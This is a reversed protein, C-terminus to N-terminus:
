IQELISKRLVFIFWIKYKSMSLKTLSLGDNSTVKNALGQYNFNIDPDSFSRNRPARPSLTIQAVPLIQESINQLMLWKRKFSVPGVSSSSSSNSTNYIFKQKNAVCNPSTRLSEPKKLLCISKESKLKCEVRQCLTFDCKTCSNTFVNFFFRRQCYDCNRILFFNKDKVCCFCSYNTM